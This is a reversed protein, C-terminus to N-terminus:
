IKKEIWNISQDNWLKRIKYFYYQLEGFDGVFIVNHNKIVSAKIYLPLEEFLRIDYKSGDVKGWVKGLLISFDKPTKLNPAVICIDIDSRIHQMNKAYSGYLIVALINKEKIDKGLFSFDKKLENIKIKPKIM